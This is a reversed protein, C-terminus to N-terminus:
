WSHRHDIMQQSVDMAPFYTDGGMVSSPTVPMSSAASMADPFLGAKQFPGLSLDVMAERRGALCSPNQFPNTWQIPFTEMAPSDSCVPPECCSSGSPTRYTSSFSDGQKFNCDTHRLLQTKLHYIEATLSDFCTSLYRNKDEMAQERSALASAEDRKRLRCKTAAIRNREIVRRRRPDKPLGDQDLDELQRPAALESDSRATSKRGRKQVKNSGHSPLTNKGYTISALSPDALNQDFATSESRGLQSKEQDANPIHTQSFDAIHLSPELSPQDFPVTRPTDQAAMAPPQISAPMGGKLAFNTDFANDFFNSNTVM